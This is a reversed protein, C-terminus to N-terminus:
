LGSGFWLYVAGGGPPVMADGPSGVVLDDIGDLNVDATALASGARYNEGEGVLLLPADDLERSGPPMPGYEVFVVGSATGADDEGPAGIALDVHGDHNLDLATIAQGLQVNARGRLVVRAVADLPEAAVTSAPTDLIWVRDGDDSPGAVALEPTGDEDLDPLVAVDLRVRAPNLPQAPGELVVDADDLSTDQTVPGNFVHVRGPVGLQAEGVVLDDVGDGNVDGVALGSPPAGRIRVGTSVPILGTFPRSLWWAATDADESTVLVGDDGAAVLRGIADTPGGEFTADSAEPSLVVDGVVAGPVVHVLGAGVGDGQIVWQSGTRAIVSGLGFVIGTDRVTAIAGAEADLDEWDGRFAYRFAAGGNALGFRPAGVFLGEPGAVVREGFDANSTTSAIAVDASGLQPAGRAECPGPSGDCDNDVGDNCLETAGPNVEPRADDCDGDNPTFQDGDADTNGPCDPCPPLEPFCGVLLLWTM